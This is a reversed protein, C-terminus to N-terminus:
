IAACVIWLRPQLFNAPNPVPFDAQLFHDRNSGNVLLGSVIGGAASLDREASRNILYNWAGTV